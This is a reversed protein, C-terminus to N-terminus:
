AMWAAHNMFGWSGKGGNNNVMIMFAITFGRVVDLPLLRRAPEPLLVPSTM